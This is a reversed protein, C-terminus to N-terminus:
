KSNYKNHSSFHSQGSGFINFTIVNFNTPRHDAELLLFPSPPISCHLQWCPAIGINFFSAITESEQVQLRFTGQRHNLQDPRFSLCGKRYRQEGTFTGGFGLLEYCAFSLISTCVGLAVMRCLNNANGGVSIKCVM